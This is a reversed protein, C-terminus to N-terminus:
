FVFRTGDSEEEQELIFDLSRLMVKSVRGEGDQGGWGAPEGERLGPGWGLWGEQQSGSM